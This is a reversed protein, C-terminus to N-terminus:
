RDGLAALLRSVVAAPDAARMVAGMVAVGHAGAARLDPVTGAEVGGLAYVPTGAAAAVARRVGDAGLPPGYGPKSRSAAVPSVTVWSAGQAVARVVDDPDHCSRGHPLGGADAVPQHSALQVAHAGPLVARAAVVGVCSALEAALDARASGELDLERLVVTTAGADACRTVVEVLGRGQPLQRRDTLLLLRPPTM